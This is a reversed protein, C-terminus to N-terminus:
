RAAGHARMQFKNIKKDIKYIMEEAVFGTRSTQIQGNVSDATVKSFSQTFYVPEISGSGAQSIDYEGFGKNVKMWMGTKQDEGSGCVSPIAWLVYGAGSSVTKQGLIPSTASVMM